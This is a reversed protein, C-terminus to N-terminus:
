LKFQIKCFAETRWTIPAYATSKASAAHILLIHENCILHTYYVIVGGRLITNLDNTAPAIAPPHAFDTTAGNSRALICKWPVDCCTMYLTNHVLFDGVNVDTIM